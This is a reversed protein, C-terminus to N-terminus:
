EGARQPREGDDELPCWWDQCWREDLEAEEGKLGADEEKPGEEEGDVDDENRLEGETRRACPGDENKREESKRGTALAGGTQSAERQIGGSKIPDRYICGSDNGGM